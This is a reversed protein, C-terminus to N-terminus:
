LKPTSAFTTLALKPGETVFNSTWGATPTLTLLITLKVSSMASANAALSTRISAGIGPLDNIPISTGFLLILMTDNLSIM